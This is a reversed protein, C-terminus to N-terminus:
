MDQASKLASVVMAFAPVRRGDASEHVRRLVTLNVASKYVIEHQSKARKVGVAAPEGYCEFYCSKQCGDKM